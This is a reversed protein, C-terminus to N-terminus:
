CVCVDCHKQQFFHEKDIHFEQYHHHHNKNQYKKQLAWSQLERDDGREEAVTNQAGEKVERKERKEERGERKEPAM